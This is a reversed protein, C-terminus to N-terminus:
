MPEWASERRVFLKDSILHDNSPTVRDIVAHLEALGQASNSDCFALMDRAPIAIAYDGQVFQRFQRDWLQDALILSAEFDGGMLVAFINRYPQVRLKRQSALTLLNNIGIQYLSKADIGDREVHRTQIYTYHKGEDVVYCVSLGPAILRSIPRDAYPLEVYSEDVDEAAGHIPLAAKVYAIARSTFTQRNESM